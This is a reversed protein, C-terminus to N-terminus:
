VLQKPRSSVPSEERKKAAAIIVDSAKESIMYVSTVIFFGPIVPFVSADVVRLNKTGYVQFNGDVVANPDDPTGMKNSCSAHHGWANDRIFERIEDDTKVHPGPVLEQKILHRSRHLMERAFKVGELVSELDEGAKDTGEDFYHFCIEPTDRPDTTRLRVVGGRNKTHAKLIAWTFMNKNAFADRSYGTYYGRFYGVLGFVFLDPEPREPKSRKILSIVAGNTTYPGKGKKWEQFPPDGEEGIPPGEFTAGKLLAFDEKMESVVGVEYRDQLNKGVGPRDVRVPIGHQELEERPGIGSLMLLQPSNFAGGCLIVEHRAFVQHTESPVDPVGDRDARYQKKDSQQYEVGVARNDDDLLVRTALAGLEITLNKPFRKQVRLVYERTGQRVGKKTSLPTFRLGEASENVFDWDNPDLASRVRFGSKIFRWVTKLFRFVPNTIDVFAEAASKKLLRLLEHDRLVLKPDAEETSLWGGFGHRSPNWGFLKQLFRQMPRYRCDELREFYKRMKKARWSDDGTLEAIQEWDSNHPYIMIMAHHATCGGVGSSRPYLVGDRAKEFKSDKEQRGLDEYHRVYYDWRMEPDESAKPHLVPIKYNYPEPKGGAELLCVKFGAKALNGALPGGGAGSGVIVFDFERDQDTM